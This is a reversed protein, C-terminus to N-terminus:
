AVCRQTALGKQQRRWAYAAIGVGAFMMWLASPEPVPPTNSVLKFADGETVAWAYHDNYRYDYGQAGAVPFTTWLGWAKLTDNAVVDTWYMNPRLNKVFAGVVGPVAQVPGSVGATFDPVGAPSISAKLGLNVYYMYALENRPSTINYGADTSGDYSSPYDIVRVGNVPDFHPLRWDANGFYELNAAWSMAKSWDMAGDTDFGSTKAYNADALWTIDLVTDYFVEYGNSLDADLNGAVLAAHASSALAASLASVRLSSVLVKVFSSQRM